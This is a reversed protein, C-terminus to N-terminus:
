RLANALREAFDEPTVFGTVRVGRVENGRADLLIVTPLGTVGFRKLLAETENTKRTVDARLSTFDCAQQVVKPSSFTKEDLEACVACWAATFDIVVPRGSATAQQLAKASYPQWSITHKAPHPTLLSLGLVVLAIGLMPRALWVRGFALSSKFSLVYIAVALFFGPVAFQQAQPPLLLRGFYVAAGLLAFGSLKKVTVMWAGAQPLRSISGSFLALIVFPLGLGLSLSFFILFGMMPSKLQAVWLAVGAIAPGVCPSAVLGLALGMLLAGPLGSKAGTKNMLFAPPRFEYLGFMSLALAVFVVAIVAVVIPNQLASGFLVGFSSAIIGLVSYTVAMGLVYVIALGLLKNKQGQSQGAFFGITIPIMPYVCPTLCLTLGLLFAILAAVVPSSGELAALLRQVFGMGPKAVAPSTECFLNKNVDRAKGPPTVKATLKTKADSPAYCSLADCAQYHLSIAMVRPGPKAKRAVKGPVIILFKSEYVPIEKESFAFKRKKPKDFEPKGFTIGPGGTISLKPPISDPSTDANAHFGPKVKAIVAVKFDSGAPLKDLSLAATITVLDQPAGFRAHAPGAGIAAVALFIVWWRFRIGLENRWRCTIFEREM